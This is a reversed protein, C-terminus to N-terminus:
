MGSNFMESVMDVHKKSFYDKKLPSIAIYGNDVAVDDTDPSDDLIRYEGNYWYCEAGFPSVYKEYRDVWEARSCDTIKVGKIEETKGTPVNVNFLFGADRPCKNLVITAIKKGFFASAEFDANPSYDALSIAMSRIGALMGETAVAITGSYMINMGTNRGHNIGSVVLDPKVPLLTSLALKACDAPTGSVTIAEVGPMFEVKKAFLPRGVTLSQSTGSRQDEPAVVYVKGLEMLESVLCRLGKSNIGDDNSVFIVREKTM